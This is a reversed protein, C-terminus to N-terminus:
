TLVERERLGAIEEASYGLVRQMVEDTDQGLCPAPRRVQCPTDSFVWPVGAHQRVGVEAHPLEVFFGRSRLHSDEALEKNTLAPFAAVGAAQLKATVEEATLAVTWTNLVEELADENQKRVALTAFRSDAALAPQDMGMCLRQWEEESAVVISVWRDDGQCRFLGHPVMYPDRNGMRPPQTGNMVQEMVGEGLVVVSTEWQSLDIYQGEGTRARHMLAALVAFAGHLGGNPDGYSFGVHMPPFGPFGTLSSLGSMPVQAPGYSVYASEPGSAGYGSMAIMIIEPKIQRLVEYGLGMKDMVGAAFNEAVIDSVAVLKKAIELGELKKLNLCFSAKGQNYQNYYGSRNPGPQGDAFPPLRRTVCVRSQSEVRIVEAGLHALQMTGFPGAWVWTFDAVRIGSLPLDHPM